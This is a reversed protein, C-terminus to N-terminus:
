NLDVYPWFFLIGQTHNEDDCYLINIISKRLTDSIVIRNRYNFFFDNIISLDNKFRFYEKVNFDLIENINPFGFKVIKKENISILFYLFSLFGIYIFGM